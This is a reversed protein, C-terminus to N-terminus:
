LQLLKAAVARRHWISPQASDSEQYAPLLPQNKIFFDNAERWDAESHKALNVDGILVEDFGLQFLSQLQDPIVNGTARLLGRYKKNLRLYRAISLGRGDSFAPIDIEITDAKLVARDFAAPDANGDVACAQEFQAQRLAHSIVVPDAGSKLLLM